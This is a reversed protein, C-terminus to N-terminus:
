YGLGALPRATGYFGLTGILGLLAERRPVHASVPVVCFGSLLAWTESHTRLFSPFLLLSAKPTPVTGHEQRPGREETERSGAEWQRCRCASLLHGSLLDGHLTAATGTDTM